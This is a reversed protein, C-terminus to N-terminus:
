SARFLRVTGDESGTALVKGDPSFAVTYIQTAHGTSLTCMEQGSVVDFLKVTRDATGLALRTGDPSFRACNARGSGTVVSRQTIGSYGGFGKLVFETRKSELDWVRVTVDSFSGVSALRSGSPSFALSNVWDSHGELQTVLEGSDVRWFRVTRSEGGAAVLTGDPSFAVCEVSGESPGLERLEAGTKADWLRVSGDFSASAITAGDPSWAVSFVQDTHGRLLRVQSRENVDWIRVTQDDGGTVAYRGDPSFAVSRVYGDHGRLTGVHRNAAPEWLMVTGDFSASAVLTGAPNFAVSYVCDTHGKLVDSASVGARTSWFKLVRDPGGSVLATDDPSFSLSRPPETHGLYEAVRIGANYDWTEVTGVTTSVAVLRGSNSFTVAAIGFTHFATVRQGTTTDFIVADGTSNGTIVRTGDRSWAADRIQEPPTHIRCRLRGSDLDWLAVTQVGDREHGTLLSKGDPSPVMGGLRGMSGDGLTRRAGTGIRTVVVDGNAELAIAFEGGESLFGIDVHSSYVRTTRLYVGTTASHARVSGDRCLVLLEGGDRSFSFDVTNEFPGGVTYRVDGTRADVVRVEGDGCRAGVVTQDPSWRATWVVEGVSATLTDSGILRRLYDFEFGRANPPADSALEDAILQAIRAYDKRELAQYALNIHAVYLLRANLAREREALARQEDARNRNVRADYVLWGMLGLIVLAVTATRLIGAAFARRQRRAEADPMANRIWDEDFVDEYIRNRVVLRGGEVRAIGALRLAGVIPNAEGDPVSKGARVKRYLELLEALDSESRLMRDRVFLLNDDRERASRSLFLEDCLRDVDSASRAEPDAAVASCLRQTLYPHGGTWYLIRGLLNASEDDTGGLGRALPAAEEPTFDDLSIRTGINFPTTRTDRILDSPSAVGLLCFTLRELTPEDARRNYLERIGAFFEDTPFPLSRVADIEDIFITVRGPSMPLLVETISRMLRQMPGLGTLGSWVQRLADELGSEDGLTVLLGRYWQDVTLNQGIETLDVVLATQDAARLRAATRVMLSSKGMQRPTLVYCLQGASLADFLEDDARRPMYSEADRTLTGGAIYFEPASPHSRNTALSM